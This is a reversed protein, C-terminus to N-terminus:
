LWFSEVVGGDCWNDPQLIYFKSLFKHVQLLDATGDNAVSIIECILAYFDRVEISVNAGMQIKDAFSEPPCTRVMNLLTNFKCNDKRSLPGTILAFADSEKDVLDPNCFDLWAAQITDTFDQCGRTLSLRHKIQAILKFKNGIADTYAVLADDLNFGKSYTQAEVSVIRKNPFIAIAGDCVMLVALLSLIEVEFEFGEGGTLQPPAAKRRCFKVIPRKGRM